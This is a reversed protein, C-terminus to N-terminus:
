PCPLAFCCGSVWWGRHDIERRVSGVLSSRFPRDRHVPRPRRGPLGDLLEPEFKPSVLVAPSEGPGVFILSNFHDYHKQMRAWAEAPNDHRGYEEFRQQSSYSPIGWPYFEYVGWSDPRRDVTLNDWEVCEQDPYRKPRHEFTVTVLEPLETVAISSTSTSASMTLYAKRRRQIALAHFLREARKFLQCDCWGMRADSGPRHRILVERVCSAGFPKTM